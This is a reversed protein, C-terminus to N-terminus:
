VERNEQTQAGYSQETAKRIIQVEKKTTTVGKRENRDTWEKRGQFGSVEIVSLEGNRSSLMRPLLITRYLPTFLSPLM